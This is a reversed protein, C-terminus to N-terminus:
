RLIFFFLYIFMASGKVRVGIEPYRLTEILELNLVAKVPMRLDLLTEFPHANVDGSGEM